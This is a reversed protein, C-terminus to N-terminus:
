PFCGLQCGVIKVGLGDAAEGVERPSVKLERAIEFAAACLLKGNALSATIKEQLVMEM